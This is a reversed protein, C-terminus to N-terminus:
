LLQLVFHNDQVQVLNFKPPSGKKWPSYGNRIFWRGIEASRLERCTNNWFSPTLSLELEGVRGPLSLFVTKWSRQFNQDREEQRLKLGYGGGTTNHKGSFWATAIM